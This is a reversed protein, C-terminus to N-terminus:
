KKNLIHTTATTLDKVEITNDYKYGNQTFRGIAGHEMEEMWQKEFQWADYSIWNTSTLDVAEIGDIENEDFDKM